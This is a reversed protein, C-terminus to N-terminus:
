FEQSFSIVGSICHADADMFCGDPFRIGEAFDLTAGKSIVGDIQLYSTGGTSTGNRLILIGATGDSVMHVSYVRVPKGSVGVVADTTTIAQTGPVLNMSM